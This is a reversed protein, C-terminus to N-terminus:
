RNHVLVPMGGKPRLTIQLVPHFRHDPDAVFRCDRVLRALIVAAEMMAFRM